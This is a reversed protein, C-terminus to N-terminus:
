GTVGLFVLLRAPARPSSAKHLDRHVGAEHLDWLSSAQCGGELYGELQDHM